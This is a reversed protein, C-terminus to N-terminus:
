YGAFGGGGRKKMQEEGMLSAPKKSKTYELEWQASCTDTRNEM